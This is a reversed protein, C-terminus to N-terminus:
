LCLICDWVKLLFDFHNAQLLLVLPVMGLKQNEFNHVYNTSKLQSNTTTTHYYFVKFSAHLLSNGGWGESTPTTSYAPELAVLAIMPLLLESKVVLIGQTKKVLSQQKQCLQFFWNRLLNFYSFKFFYGYSRSTVKNYILRLFNCSRM